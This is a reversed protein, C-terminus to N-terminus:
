GRGAAHSDWWSALDYLREDGGGVITAVARFGDASSTWAVV